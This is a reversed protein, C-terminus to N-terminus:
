RERKKKCERTAVLVGLSDNKRHCAVYCAAVVKAVDAIGDLEHAELM